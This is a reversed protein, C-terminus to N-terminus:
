DYLLDTYTSDIEGVRIDSYKVHSDPHQGEVDNPRGSSTACTGRPGGWSTKDVPYTSDLWLMYAAHDDWLSMVLVMGADLAKGMQAMGGKAGFDNTDGFVTKVAPCMEDSLSNYETDLGGM